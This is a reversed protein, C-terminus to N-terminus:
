TVAVIFNILIYILHHTCPRAARQLPQSNDGVGCAGSMGLGVPSSIGLVTTVASASPSTAIGWKEWCAQPEPSVLLCLPPHPLLSLFFGKRKSPLQSAPQLKSAQTHCRLTTSTLKSAVGHRVCSTPTLPPLLLTRCM